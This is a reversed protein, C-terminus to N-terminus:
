RPPRGTIDRRNAAVWQLFLDRVFPIKAAPARLEFLLLGGGADVFSGATVRPIGLEDETYEYEMLNPAGRGAMVAAAAYPATMPATRWWSCRLLVTFDSKPSWSAAADPAPLGQVAPQPTPEALWGVPASVVPAGDAGFSAREFAGTLPAALAQVLLPSAQLSELSRRLVSRNYAVTDAPGVYRAIIREQGVSSIAYEM